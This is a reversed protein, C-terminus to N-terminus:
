HADLCLMSGLRQGFLDTVPRAAREQIDASHHDVREVGGIQVGSGSIDRFVCGAVTNDRSGFELDLGSGAWSPEEIQKGEKKRTLMFQPQVMRVIAYDGDRIISAVKVRTYAWATRYCLELDCPRQWDALETRKTRFGDEGYLELDTIPKGRARVARHNDVYM